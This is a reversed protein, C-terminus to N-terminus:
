GGRRRMLAIGGLGLLMLSAPEPVSATAQEGGLKISSPRPPIARIRRRRPQVYRDVVEM